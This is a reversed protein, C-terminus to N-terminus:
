TEERTAVQEKPKSDLEDRTATFLEFLVLVLSELFELDDKRCRGVWRM